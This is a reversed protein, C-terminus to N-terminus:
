FTLNFTKEKNLLEKFIGFEGKKTIYFAFIKVTSLNDNDKKHRKIFM